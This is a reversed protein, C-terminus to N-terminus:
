HARIHVFLASLCHADAVLPPRHSQAELFDVWCHLFEKGAGSVPMDNCFVLVGSLHVDKSAFIWQEGCIGMMQRMDNQLARCKIVVRHFIPTM